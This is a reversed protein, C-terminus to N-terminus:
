LNYMTDECPAIHFSARLLVGMLSHILLKRELYIQIWHVNQVTLLNVKESDITPKGWISLTREWPISECKLRIIYGREEDVPYKFPSMKGIKHSMSLDLPTSGTLGTHDLAHEGLQIQCINIICLMKYRRALLWHISVIVQRTIYGGIM